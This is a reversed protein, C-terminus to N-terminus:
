HRCPSTPLGRAPVPDEGCGGWPHCRGIRKLTLWTGTLAGHRSIAEIAYASCTPHFRCQASPGFLFQKAPSIVLRYFRVCVILSFQAANVDV